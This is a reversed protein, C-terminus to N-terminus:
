VLRPSTVESLHAPFFRGGDAYSTIVFERKIKGQQVEEHREAEAARTLCSLGMGEGQQTANLNENSSQQTGRCLQVSDVSGFEVSVLRTLDAPKLSGSGSNACGLVM